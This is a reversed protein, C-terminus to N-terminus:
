DRPSPSTYLLCAPADDAIAQLKKIASALAHITNTFRHGSRKFWANIDRAKWQSFFDDSGFEIGAEVAGCFGFGRLLANYLVFM